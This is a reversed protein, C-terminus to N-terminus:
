DSADSSVSVGRPPLAPAHVLFRTHVPLPQGTLWEGIDLELGSVNAQLGSVEDVYDLTGDRIEIGAIQPPSQQGAASATKRPAGAGGPLPSKGPPGARGTLGPRPGGIGGIRTGRRM